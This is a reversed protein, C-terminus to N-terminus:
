MTNEKLCLSISCIPTCSNRSGMEVGLASMGANAANAADLPAPPDALSRLPFFFLSLQRCSSHTMRAPAELNRFAISHRRESKHAEKQSLFGRFKPRAWTPLEIRRPIQANWGLGSQLVRKPQRARHKMGCSALARSEFCREM